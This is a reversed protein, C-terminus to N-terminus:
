GTDNSTVLVQVVSGSIGIIIPDDDESAEEASAEGTDM